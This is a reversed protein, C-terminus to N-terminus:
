IGSMVLGAAGVLFLMLVAIGVSSKIEMAGLSPNPRCKKQGKKTKTKAM